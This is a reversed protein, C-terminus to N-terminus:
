ATREGTGRGLARDLPALRLIDDIQEHGTAHAMHIGEVGLGLFLLDHTLGLGDWGLRVPDHDTM